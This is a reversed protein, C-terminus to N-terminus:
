GSKSIEYIKVREVWYDGVNIVEFILNNLKFCVGVNPIGNLTSLVLGNITLADPNLAINLDYLENLERILMTGDVILQGEKNKIALYRQQPSETTFDGFIMELMDELCAIGSIDGYENTVVFIRNRYKQALHIQRIIQMFDNVFTILRVRQYIQSKTEEDKDISLIDKTHIFGLINDINNEYVILRTHHTTHIKKYIEEVGESMNIAEIMRLPILVEKITISELAISNLLISRHKDKFPSRKDAIMAKLEELSTGEIGKIGLLKTITLILQDILWVIPRSIIFLYYAPLAVIRLTQIPAKAAIIKPLAESFIIIFLAIILTSITLVLKDNMSHFLSVLLFTSLTTFATNALSNGFLSFILVQNLQQKLKHALKAWLYKEELTKLRYESVAVTATEVCSFLSGIALIVLILIISAGKAYGM